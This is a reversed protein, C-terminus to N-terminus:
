EIINPWYDKTRRTDQWLGQFFIRNNVSYLITAWDIVWGFDWFLEFLNFCWDNMQIDCIDLWDTININYRDSDLPDPWTYNGKYWSEISEKKVICKNQMKKPITNKISDEVTWSFPINVIDVLLDDERWFIYARIVGNNQDVIISEKSFDFVDHSWRLRTNFPDIQFTIWLDSTISYINYGSLSRQYEASWTNIWSSWFVRKYWIVLLGEGSLIMNDKLFLEYAWSSILWLWKKSFTKQQLSSSISPSYLINNLQNSEYIFYISCILSFWLILRLIKKM